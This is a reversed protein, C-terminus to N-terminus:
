KVQRVPKLTATSPEHSETESSASGGAAENPQLQNCRVNATQESASKTGARPSSEAIIQAVPLVRELRRTTTHVSKSGDLSVAIRMVRQAMNVALEVNDNQFLIAPHTCASQGQGM